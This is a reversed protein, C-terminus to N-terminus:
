LTLRARTEEWSRSVMYTAVIKAIDNPMTIMEERIASLTAAKQM